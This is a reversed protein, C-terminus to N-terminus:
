VGLAIAGAGGSQDLAIDLDLDAVKLAADPPQFFLADRPDQRHGLQTFFEVM